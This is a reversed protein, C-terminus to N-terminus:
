HRHITAQQNAQPSKKVKKLRRTLQFMKTGDVRDDWQKQVIEIFNDAISWMNFYKFPRPGLKMNFFKVAAPSHDSINEPLFHAESELFVNLREQNTLVQDYSSNNLEAENMLTDFANQAEVEQSTRTPVIITRQINDKRAWRQIIQPRRSCNVESHGLMGCSSCKTPKWEFHVPQKVEKGKKNEFTVELERAYVLRIRRATYHDTQKLIGIQSMFKIFDPLQVWVDITQVEKKSINMESNWKKVMVLHKDFFITGGELARQGDEELTFRILFSGKEVMVVREFAFKRRKFFGEIVKLPSNMVLISALNPADGPAMSKMQVQQIVVTDEENGKEARDQDENEHEWDTMCEAEFVRSLEKAISFRSGESLNRIYYLHAESQIRNLELAKRVSLPHDERDRMGKAM